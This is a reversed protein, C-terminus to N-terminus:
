RIPNSSTNNTTEMMGMLDNVTLELSFSNSEYVAEVVTQEVNPFISKIQALDSEKFSMSISTNCHGVLLTVKPYFFLVKDFNL